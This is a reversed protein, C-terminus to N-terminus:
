SYRGLGGTDSCFYIAPAPSRQSSLYTKLHNISCISKNEIFINYVGQPYTVTIM